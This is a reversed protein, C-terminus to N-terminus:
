KSYKELIRVIRKDAKGDVKGCVLKVLKRGEKLLVKEKKLAKNLYEGFDQKYNMSITAKEKEIWRTQSDNDLMNMTITPRGIIMSEFAATSGMHAFVECRQIIKYFEDRTISGPCITIKKEKIKLRRLMKKYDKIHSERPHLKLIIKIGKVGIAKRLIGELRKFYKNKSLVNSEILPSTAIVVEKSTKSKRGIYKNINEFIVPGVMHVKKKDIGWKLLYDKNKKGFVLFNLGYKNSTLITGLGVGHQIIFTKVGAEKAAAIACKEFFGNESTLVMVKVKKDLLIRKFTEVAIVLNYISEKSYLFNLHHKMLHWLTRNNPKYAKEKVKAPINKWAKNMRKSESNAKKVIDRNIYSYITNYPGLLKKITFRNMPDIVMIGNNIKKKGMEKLVGNLRFVRSKSIHHTYVLSLIDKKSMSAKKRKMRTLSIKARTNTKLIKRLFYSFLSISLNKGAKLKSRKKFIKNLEELKLFPRPLLDWLLYNDYFWLVNEGYAKIKISNWLKENLVAPSLKSSTKLLEKNQAM